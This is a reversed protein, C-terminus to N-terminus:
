YYNYIGLEELVRYCTEKCFKSFDDNNFWNAIQYLAYARPCGEIIFVPYKDNNMAERICDWLWEDADEDSLLKVSELWEDTGIEGMQYYRSYNFLEEKIGKILNDVDIEIDYEIIQEFHYM